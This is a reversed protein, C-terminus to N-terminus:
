VTSLFHADNPCEQTVNRGKVNLDYFSTAQKLEVPTVIFLNPNNRGPL